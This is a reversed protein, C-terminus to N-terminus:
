SSTLFQTFRFYHFCSKSRTELSPHKGVEMVHCVACVSVFRVSSFNLYFLKCNKSRPERPGDVTVKIAKTYTTVQPPSTSITITLSFSKGLFVFFLFSNPQFNSTNLHPFRRMHHRVIKLLKLKLCVKLKSDRISV